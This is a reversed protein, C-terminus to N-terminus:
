LGAEVFRVASAEWYGRYVRDACGDLNLQYMRFTVPINKPQWQEEYSYQYRMGIRRMVGGSAPNNRDHTATLFPLGDRQAQSAVAQGAEAAIGRGWFERRLGYGLDHAEGPSVNVYGIPRNDERLCVAYAYAQERGSAAAYRERYFRRAEEMSKVPFWPLFRNTEEDSFIAYVAELDGETFSRLILRPTLLAPPNGPAGTKKEM